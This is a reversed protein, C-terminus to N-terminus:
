RGLELEVHERVLERGRRDDVPPQEDLKVEAALSKARSTSLVRVLEPWGEAIGGRVAADSVYMDTRVRARSLAVYGAERFLSANALVFARDVTEGQSKHITTAYGYDLHGGALYQHPLDILLDEAAITVGGGTSRAVAIGRTGNLVGLRHDNRTCIVSDGFRFERFGDNAMVNGLDGRSLLERRAETNLADVDSRTAALMRISPRESRVELWDAVMERRASAIDPAMHLRGRREYEAVARGVDGHRLEALSSREWAEHQRRNETLEPGHLQRAIAAFAGGAEIEPLQRADGVLVIKAGATATEDVLHALQRTGAMGAEDVVVVDREDLVTEGSRLDATLSVLTSSQIGAGDELERAARASLATGRVRFGEATWARKAAALATTKGAGARGVVADVGHGATVLHEVMHRQEDSLHPHDALAAQLTEQGVVAAGCRQRMAATELLTRETVLLETTTLQGEAGSGPRGLRVVDPHLLASASLQELQGLHAGSGCREAMARMVDRPEFTSKKATLGHPAVLEDSWPEAMDDLGHLLRPQGVARAVVSPEIGLARTREAWEERLSRTPLAAEKKTRTALAAIESARTGRTGHEGMAAEIEHRRTSFHSVLEDPIGAVEAIGRRVPGFRVGLAESLHARLAAQYVYSATTGHVYLLRADPASWRGDIGEGVNAVLLHTHLQPDTARSTRHRFAAAVFGTTAIPELGDHGRRASLAHAALYSSAEEVARDHALRVADATDESGLAWLVSVSKPASFTLDFGAVRKTRLKVLDANEGPRRGALVARLDEPAVTGTLGLRASGGGLWVGPAEGSGTYYDERGSAVVGLYYDEAGNGLKAISLM